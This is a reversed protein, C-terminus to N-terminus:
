VVIDAMHINHLVHASAVAPQSKAWVLLGVLTCFIALLILLGKTM